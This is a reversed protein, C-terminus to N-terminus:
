EFGFIIDVVRKDPKLNLTIMSGLEIDDGSEIGMVDPHKKFESVLIGYSFQNKMHTVLLDLDHTSDRVAASGVIEVKVGAKDFLAKYKKIFELGTKENWVFKVENLFNNIRDIISEEQKSTNKDQAIKLLKQFTM